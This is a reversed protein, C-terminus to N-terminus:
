GKYKSEGNVRTLLCGQSIVDIPARGKTGRNGLREKKRLCDYKEYGNSECVKM